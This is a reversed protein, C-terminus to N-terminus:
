CFLVTAPDSARRIDYTQPLRRTQSARAAAAAEEWEEAVAMGAPAEAEEMM